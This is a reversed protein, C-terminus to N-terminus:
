VLGELLEGIIAVESHSLKQGRPISASIVIGRFEVRFSVAHAARYDISVTETVPQAAHMKQHAAWLRDAQDPGIHTTEVWWPCRACSTRAM